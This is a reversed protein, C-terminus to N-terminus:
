LKPRPAATPFLKAARSDEPKSDKISEKSLRSQFTDVLIENALLKLTIPDIDFETTLKTNDNVMAFYANMHQELNEQTTIAGIAEYNNLAQWEQNHALHIFDEQLKSLETQAERLIALKPVLDAQLAVGFVQLNDKSESFDWNVFRDPNTINLKLTGDTELGRIFSCFDSYLVKLHKDEGVLDSVYFNGELQAFLARLDQNNEGDCGITLHISTAKSLQQQATNLNQLLYECDMYADFIQSDRVDIATDPPLLEELHQPKIKSYDSDLITTLQKDLDRLLDGNVLRGVTKGAWGYDLGYDKQKLTSAAAALQEPNQQKIALTADVFFNGLVTEDIKQQNNETPKPSLLYALRKFNEAAQNLLLLSSLNEQEVGIEAPLRELIQLREVQKLSVDQQLQEVFDYFQLALDVAQLQREGNEVFREALRKPTDILQFRHQLIRANHSVQDSFEEKQQQLNDM